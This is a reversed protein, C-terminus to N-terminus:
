MVGADPIKPTGGPIPLSMLIDIQMSLPSISLFACYDLVGRSVLGSARAASPARCPNRPMGLGSSGGDAVGSYCRRSSKVGSGSIAM